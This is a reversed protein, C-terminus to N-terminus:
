KPKIVSLHSKHGELPRSERHHPRTKLLQEKFTSIPFHIISFSIDASEPWLLSIRDQLERVRALAVVSVALNGNIGIAYHAEPHGGPLTRPGFLLLM